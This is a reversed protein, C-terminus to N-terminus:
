IIGKYGIVTDFNGCCTTANNVTCHRWLCQHGTESSSWNNTGLCVCLLIFSTVAYVSYLQTGTNLEDFGHILKKLNEKFKLSM